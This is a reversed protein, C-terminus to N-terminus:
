PLLPRRSATRGDPAPGVLVLERALAGRIHLRGEVARTLGTHPLPRRRRDRLEPLAVRGIVNLGLVWGRRELGWDGRGNAKSKHTPEPRSLHAQDSRPSFSRARERKCATMVIRATSIFSPHTAPAPSAPPPCTQLRRISPTPQM